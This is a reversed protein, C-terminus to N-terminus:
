AGNILVGMRPGWYSAGLGDATLVKGVTAGGSPVPSSFGLAAQYQAAIETAGLAVSYYAVEDMTGFGYRTCNTGAVSGAQIGYGFGVDTPCTITVNSATTAVLAGNIYLNMTAGDFTAVIFYWVGATLV